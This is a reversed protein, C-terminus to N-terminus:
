KSRGADRERERLKAGLRAESRRAHRRSLWLHWLAAFAVAAAIAGVLVSTRYAPAEVDFTRQAAHAGSGIGVVIGLTFLNPLALVVALGILILDAHWSRRKRFAFWVVLLPLLTFAFGDLLGLGVGAGINGNVLDGIRHSWWRPVFALSLLVAVAILAAVVVGNRTRRAWTRRHWPEREPPQDTPAAQERV